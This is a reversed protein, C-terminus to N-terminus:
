LVSLLVISELYCCGVRECHIQGGETFFFVFWSLQHEILVFLVDECPVTLVMIYVSNAIQGM